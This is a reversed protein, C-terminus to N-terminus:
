KRPEAESTGVDSETGTYTLNGIVHLGAADVLVIEKGGILIRVTNTKADTIIQPKSDAPQAPQSATAPAVSLLMFLATLGIIRKM